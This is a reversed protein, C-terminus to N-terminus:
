ESTGMEYPLTGLPATIKDIHYILNGGPFQQCAFIEPFFLLHFDFDQLQFPESFRQGSLAM